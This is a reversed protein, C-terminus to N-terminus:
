TGLPRSVLLSAMPALSWLSVAFMSTLTASSAAERTNTAARCKPLGYSEKQFNSLVVSLKKSKQPDHPKESTVPPLGVDKEESFVLGPAESRFFLQIVRLFM